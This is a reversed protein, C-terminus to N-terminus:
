NFRFVDLLSIVWFRLFLRSCLPVLVLLLLGLSLLAALGAAASDAAGAAFFASFPLRSFFCLSSFPTLAM